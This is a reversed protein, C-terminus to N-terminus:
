SSDIQDNVAIPDRDARGLIAEVIGIYHPVERDLYIQPPEEGGRILRPARQGIADPLM